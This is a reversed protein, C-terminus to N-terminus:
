WVSYGGDVVINQGTVYSSAESALYVFAGAVESPQGIRKMPIRSQVSEM